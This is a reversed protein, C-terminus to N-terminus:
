SSTKGQGGLLGVPPCLSPKRKLSSVAESFPLWKGSSAYHAWSQRGGLGARAVSLPSPCNTVLIHSPFPFPSSHQPQPLAILTGSNQSAKHNRGRWGTRGVNRWNGCPSVEVGSSTCPRCGRQCGRLERLIHLGGGGVGGWAQGTVM